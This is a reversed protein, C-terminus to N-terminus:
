NEELIPVRKYGKIIPGGAGRRTLGHAIQRIYERTVGYDQAVQAQSEGSAVRTRVERIQEDSWFRYGQSYISQPRIEKFEV